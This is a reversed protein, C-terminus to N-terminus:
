KITLTYKSIDYIIPCLVGVDKAKHILKAEQRTRETRLREDLSKERYKKVIREKVLANLGFLEAPYVIAEAGKFFNSGAM